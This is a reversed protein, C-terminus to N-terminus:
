CLGEEKLYKRLQVRTKHLRNKIKSQSLGTRASLEELGALHWYRAVFLQREEQPLGALFRAIAQGLEKAELTEEPGGRAPVCESLEELALPLQGGGRKEADRARARSIALNRTVRGLFSKLNLPRQPPISEWARLWTDSLCEEADQADGLIRTAVAACYGGYKAASERIAAEDRRWYCAIIERDDM